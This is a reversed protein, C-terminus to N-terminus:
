DPMYVEFLIKQYLESTGFKGSYGLRKANAEREIREFTVLRPDFTVEDFVENPEFSLQIIKQEQVNRDEIYLLRYEDEHQFAPRKLLMLKALDIGRYLATEGKQYITDGIFKKIKDPPVYDVRGFYFSDKPFTQNSKVIANILKRATTKVKVGEERILINRNHHPDKSVRSYARLLTDSEHTGSWCQAYVPLIHKELFTQGSKRTIVISWPLSEYPDEWRQPPVLALNKVRLAEEFYWLPFIRYIPADLDTINIQYPM